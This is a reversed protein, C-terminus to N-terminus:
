WDLCDGRSNITEERAAAKCRGGHWHRGKQGFVSTGQRLVARSVKHRLMSHLRDVCKNNTCYVLNSNSKLRANANIVSCRQWSWIRSPLRWLRLQVKAMALPYKPAKSFHGPAQPISSASGEPSSLSHWCLPWNEVYQTLMYDIADDNSWLHIRTRIAEVIYLM